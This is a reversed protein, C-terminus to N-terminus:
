GGVRPLGILGGTASRLQADLKAREEDLRRRAEAVRQEGETRLEAVRARVPATREEVIRDVQARVKAEAKAIEEGAVAQVRAAIARDLNSRVSLQPADLTGSLEATLDLEGLGAIVRTVLSELANLSRASASDTVWSVAPSRVSWRGSVQDGDLQVRLESTGRGPDARMPLVPLTFAPLRVGSAEVSVIDRPQDRVHDLTGRATVMEVESGTASRRLAFVTPRGVIAPETTVDALALGYTGRAAGESMTLDVDARRILFRPLAGREVFRITTGERRLRSPGTTERPVLGPPAHERALMLWYLAQQFKDITVEGFLGAGIDPADFSPLELLGRAFAYDARRTSDLSRLGSELRDVGARADRALDEVRRRASDFRAATRQVDARAANLGTIGLTRWDTGQLRAVLAGGSDLTEQIRLGQYESNLFERTSDARQLLGEAAQVTALQTPDLVIARITDIPTLSLLPVKFQSSFRGIERMARPAFGEGSVRRAPVARATGTRVGALSLREIIVKKELLPEVALDIRLQAAEVVNRTSDFPDAIAIGRLTLAGRTEDIELGAIDVQTGLAKTAAEEVTDAVLPEGFALWVGAALVLMVLLPIIGKWRFVPTRRRGGRPTEGVAPTESVAPTYAPPPTSRGSGVTSM